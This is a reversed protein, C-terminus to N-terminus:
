ILLYREALVSLLTCKNTINKAPERGELFSVAPKQVRIRASSRDFNETGQSSGHGSAAKCRSVAGTGTLLNVIHQYIRQGKFVNYRSM